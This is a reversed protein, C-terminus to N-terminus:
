HPLLNWMLAIEGGFLAFMALTGQFDVEDANEKKPFLWWTFLKIFIPMTGWTTASVSLVLNIFSSVAPNLSSMQPSLFRIELMVVPFLGLLVLMCTKWNPPGEGTEKDVPFWGPFSNSMSQFSTSKVLNNAEELLKLRETSRFWRELSAPKDFRLLTSWQRHVGPTPPQLYSGRYGPASAQASQIKAEWEFYTSEMGPKVETVIATAVDGFTSDYAAIQETVAYNKSKENEKFEALLKTRETSSQFTKARAETDFRQVLKWDTNHLEIPPLIEGSWFGPCKAGAMMLKVLWHAIIVTDQESGGSVGTVLAAISSDKAGETM